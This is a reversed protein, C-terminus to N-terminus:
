PRVQRLRVQQFYTGNDGAPELGLQEFQARVYNAALQYGRTGTGRGELLDDALFSMHARLGDVTIRQLLGNPPFASPNSQGFGLSALLILGLSVVLRQTGLGVERSSVKCCVRGSLDRGSAKAFPM